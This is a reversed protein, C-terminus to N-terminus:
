NYVEINYMHIINYLLSKKLYFLDKNVFCQSVFSESEHKRDRIWKSVNHANQEFTINSIGHYNGTGALKTSSTCYM